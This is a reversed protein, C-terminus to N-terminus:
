DPYNMRARVTRGNPTVEFSVDEFQWGGGAGSNGWGDLPMGNEAQDFVGNADEDHWVSIAYTGPDVDYSLRMTGESPSEISGAVRNGSMYQDNSQVSIYIQGDGSRVDEVVVNLPAMLFLAEIM